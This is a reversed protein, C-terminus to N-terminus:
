GRVAGDVQCLQVGAGAGMPAPISMFACAAQDNLGAVLVSGRWMAAGNARGVKALNFEEEKRICMVFDEDKEDL